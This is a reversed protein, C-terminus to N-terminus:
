PRHPELPPSTGVVEPYWDGGENVGPPPAQARIISLTPRAAALEGWATWSLPHSYGAPTFERERVHDALAAADDAGAAVAAAVVGVIAHGAVADAEMFDGDTATAFRAALEQYDRSAFDACAFDAYDDVAVDGVGDVIGSLTAWPGVVPVDLGLEAAQFAIDAVGPPHGTAAVLDPDFAQISRLYPTFDRADVPAEEVVLEIGTGAVAEELAARVADGWAYDAVVAGIREVDNDRAYALLPDALMPAAPLCTRFTHRSDPTLVAPSGAKVVFLPVELEEAVEAVAVGVSSSIVGGVAVAGEREVLREFATVGEDVDNQDDAEVLRVPRGEIGGAANIEDAALRMGALAQVGYPTFPGTLSTLVGIVVPEGDPGAAADDDDAASTCAALVLACAVSLVRPHTRRPARM